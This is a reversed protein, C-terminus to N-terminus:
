VCAVNAAAEKFVRWEKLIKLLTLGEHEVGDAITFNGTVAKKLASAAKNHSREKLFAHVLAYTDISRLQPSLRYLYFSFFVYM